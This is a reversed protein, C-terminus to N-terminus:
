VVEAVKGGVGQEWIGWGTTLPAVPVQIRATYKARVVTAGYEGDGGWWRTIEGCRVGYEPAATITCHPPSASPCNTDGTEPGTAVHQALRFRRTSIYAVGCSTKNSSRWRPQM